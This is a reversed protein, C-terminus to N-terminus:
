SYMGAFGSGDDVRGQQRETHIDQAHDTSPHSTPQEDLLPERIGFGERAIWALDAASLDFFQEPNLMQSEFMSENRDEPQEGPASTVFPRRCTPCTKRGERMWNLIDKRCFVHGCTQTLRTVGLQETPHAPSDMALAMEEEALLALLSTLCIPCPADHQGLEVLDAETLKPLEKTFAKM